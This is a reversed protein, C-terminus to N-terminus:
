DVIIRSARGQRREANRRVGSEVERAIHCFYKYIQMNSYEKYEMELRNSIYYLIVERDICRENMCQMAFTIDYVNKTKNKLITESFYRLIYPHLTSKKYGSYQTNILNLTNYETSVDYFDTYNQRLLAREKLKFRALELEDREIVTNEDIFIEATNITFDSNLAGDLFRVKIILEKNAAYYPISIDREMMYLKNAFKIIGKTVIIEREGVILDAGSIVGNSFDKFYIDLFNRPY